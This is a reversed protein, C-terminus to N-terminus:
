KPAAADRTGTLDLVSDGAATHTTSKLRMRGPSPFAVSLYETAKEGSVSYSLPEFRIEDGSWPGKHDHYEGTSSIEMWRVVHEDPSYGIITAAEIHDGSVEADIRCTVAAGLAAPKCDITATLAAPAAGPESDTGKLTWHGGFEDVTKAIEPPKTPEPQAYAAFSLAALLACRVGINCITYAM